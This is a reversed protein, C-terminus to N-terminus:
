QKTFKLIQEGLKLFYFGDPLSSIDLTIETNKRTYGGLKKELVTQGNTNIISLEQRAAPLNNKTIKLYDKAPNPYIFFGTQKELNNISTNVLNISIAFTDSTWCNSSLLEVNYTGTKSFNHLPSTETSTSEDDFLWIYSQSKESINAFAVVTETKLTYTFEARPDYKGVHWNILDDYAILKAAKRIIAANTAGITYNWTILAPDKRFIVSYFVMAAAYAGENSPHSGDPAFLNIAPYNKRLYSRVQGVPSVFADLMDAMAMYNAAILNEMTEISMGNYGTRGWTNYLITQSCTNYKHALSDLYRVYPLSNNQVTAWDTACETSQGQLVVFDFGQQKIKSITTPDTAHFKFNKGGAVREDVILTDKVSAAADRIMQPLGNFGTETGPYYTYSNGIFLVKKYHERGQGFIFGSQLLLIFFVIEKVGIRKYNMAVFIDRFIFSRMYDNQKKYKALNIRCIFFIFVNKPNVRLYGIRARKTKRQM